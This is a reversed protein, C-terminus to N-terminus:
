KRVSAPARDQIQRARTLNSQALAYAPDIVLASEFHRIAETTRGAQLLLTGLNNHAKAFSPQLTLAATFQEIAEDPRGARALANGLNYHADALAPELQVAKTDHVLAEDVRGLELLVAGLNNHVLASDPKLQLAKEFHAIAEPRRGVDALLTGLNYHAEAFGPNIRLASEFHSIAEASQGLRLHAAGLNNHADAYDPRLRIATTFHAAAERERAPERTLVAGLNNHARANDPRKAVTDTWLNLATRYAENRRITLGALAVAVLFWVLLSRRGARVFVLTVLLTPIAALALYVRSEAIPQETLPVVSSSPALLVFFWAGLFGLAPRRWLAWLLVLGLAVLALAAPLAEEFTRVFAWGYDFVLPQPWFSLKLYLLLARCETLTYNIWPVGLDYGIGRTALRAGAMFAALALWTAALAVHLRWRRRWAEAFSGGVFTRDYLLVMIPATVMTEKSAMGLLCAAAALVNWVSSGAPEAARIFCYLTLLYFLGALVETRQSLYNVAASTLPHVAWLAAAALALWVRHSGFRDRLMPLGLTRHIVGFLTLASLALIAVNVVHYGRVELGGVAYNLAYTLNAFPRGSSGAAAPPSLVAGLPWLKRISANESINSQDDLVLAGSLSNHYAAATALLLVVVALGIGPARASRPGSPSDSAM